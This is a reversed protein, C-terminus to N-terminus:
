YSAPSEGIAVIACDLLPKLGLAKAKALLEPSDAGPNVFLEAPGLAHLDGLLATGVAPPVYLGVRDVPRPVAALSAFAPVGEIEKEKPHVPYVTWQRRLYARVAKNGFKSRDPSAGVIVITPM